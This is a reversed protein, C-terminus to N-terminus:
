RNNATTSFRRREASITELGAGARSWGYATLDLWIQSGTLGLWPVAATNRGGWTLRDSDQASLGDVVAWPEISGWGGLWYFVPDSTAAPSQALLHGGEAQICRLPRAQEAVGEALFGNGDDLLWNTYNLSRLARTGESDADFMCWARGTEELALFLEDIDASGDHATLEVATTPDTLADCLRARVQTSDADLVYMYLLRGDPLLLADSVGYTAAQPHIGTLEGVLQWDNGSASRWTQVTTQGFLLLVHSGSTLRYWRAKFVRATPTGGSWAVQAVTSWSALDDTSKVLMHRPDAAGDVDAQLVYVADDDTDQWLALLSVTVGGNAAQWPLAAGATWTDTTPEYVASTTSTGGRTTVTAIKGNSLAIM